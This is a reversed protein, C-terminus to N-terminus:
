LYRPGAVVAESGPSVPLRGEPLASSRSPVPQLGLRAHVRRDGPKGGARLDRPALVDGDLYYDRYTRGIFNGAWAMFIPTVPARDRPLGALTAQIREKPLMDNM